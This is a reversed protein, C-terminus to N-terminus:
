RGTLIVPQGIAIEGGVEIAARVGGIYKLGALMDNGLLRSLYRCPPCTSVIRIRVEGIQLIEGIHDVLQENGQWDIVLNRRFDASSFQRGLRENCLAIASSDILSLQRGGAVIPERSSFTGCGQHYRDGVLGRGAEAMVSNPSQIVEAASAALHIAALYASM